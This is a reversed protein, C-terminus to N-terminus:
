LEIELALKEVKGNVDFVLAAASLQWIAVHGCVYMFLYIPLGVQYLTSYILGLYILFEEIACFSEWDSLLILSPNSFYYIKM